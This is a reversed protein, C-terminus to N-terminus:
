QGSFLWLSPINEKTKAYKDFALSISNYKILESSYFSYVVRKKKIFQIGKDTLVCLWEGLSKINLINNSLLGEDIGFSFWVNEFYALGNKETSAWLITKDGEDVLQIEKFLIGKSQLPSVLENLSNKQLKFVRGELSLFYKDDKSDILVRKFEQLFYNFPNNQHQFKTSFNKWHSGNYVSISSGTIVWLQGVKDQAIDIISNDILGDNLTFTRTSNM